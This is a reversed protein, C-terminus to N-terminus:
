HFLADIDDQSAPAAGDDGGFLADVDDQGVGEGSMQPGHLIQKQRREERSIEDQSLADRKDEVKLTSAFRSIRRDIFELTEVVKSIRQGTIDQFSCAEFINMVEANVLDAYAQHDSPDAAMLTEASEMIRDTASETADVVASLEMGAEPIREESMHNAQLSGIEDKTKVIYQAIHRLEGYLSTDLKRFYPQLTTALLEAMAMIDVLSPEGDRIKTLLEILEDTRSFDLHNEPM